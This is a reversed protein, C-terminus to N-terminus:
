SAVVVRNRGAAKAEYLAEDARKFVSEMTDDSKIQAVGFSATIQEAETCAIESVAKRLTECLIAADQLPTEPLLLVFEEGGWRAVIDTIRIRKEITEAMKKLVKDGVLHGYTDNFHKFHDIDLIVISTNNGYRKVRNLETEFLENFKNRNFIGTLNDYYAKKETSLKEINMKTIDTMSCLYSEQDEHLIRSINIQYARPHADTGVITVIRKADDSRTVLDYFSEGESLLGQHLYRPVPLFINLFSLCMKNFEEVSKVGFIDLFSKNAFLVSQFDTVVLLNQEHDLVNQLIVRQAEIEKQQKNALQERFILNSLQEIKAKLMNKEVPKQLYADVHLELAQLLYESDNHATTFIVSCDPDIAKIEQLMEIGDMVPMKIDSIVIDPKYTKFLELGEKGNEAFMVHDSIRKLARGYGERIAEEDEVYLISIDKVQPLEAQM